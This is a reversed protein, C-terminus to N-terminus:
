GRTPIDPPRARQLQLSVLAGALAGLLTVAALGWAVVDWRMGVAALLAGVALPGALIGANRGFAVTAVAAGPSEDPLRTEAAALNVALAVVGSAAGLLLLLGPLTVPDAYFVGVFLPASALLGSVNAVHPTRLLGVIPGLFVALPITILTSLSTLAAAEVLGFGRNVLYTPVWTLFALRTGHFIAFSVALSVSPSGLRALVRRWALTDSAVGASTVLGPIKRELVTVEVLALAGVAVGAGLWWVASWGAREHVFPAVYLSISSGIPMWASFIGMPLGRERRPFWAALLVTAAVAVLTMGLGEVLRTGLLLPFSPSLAGAASGGASLACGLSLTHRSGYRRLLWSTPAAAILGAVAYISMLWGADVPGVGLEAELVPILPPVKFLNLTVAVAAAMVGCLVLWPRLTEQTVTM